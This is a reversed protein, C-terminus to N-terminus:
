RVNNDQIDSHSNKRSRPKRNALSKQQRSSGREPSPDDIESKMKNLAAEIKKTRNRGPAPSKLASKAGTSLYKAKEINKTTQSQSNIVAAVEDDFDSNQSESDDDNLSARGNRHIMPTVSVKNNRSGKGELPSFSLSFTDEESPKSQQVKESSDRKVNNGAKWVQDEEDYDDGPSPPRTMQGSRARKKCREISASKNRQQKQSQSRESQKINLGGAM